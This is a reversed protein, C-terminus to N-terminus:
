RSMEHSNCRDHEPQSPFLIYPRVLTAETVVNIYDSTLRRSDRNLPRGRKRWSAHPKPRGGTLSPHILRTHYTAAFRRNGGLNIRWTEWRM